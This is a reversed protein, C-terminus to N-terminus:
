RATVEWHALEDIGRWLVSDITLVQAPQELLEGLGERPETGCVGLVVPDGPQLTWHGGKDATCQWQEPPMYGQEASKPIIMKLEGVTVPGTRRATSSAAGSHRMAEGIRNETWVGQLVSRQWREEGGQELWRNYLTVTDCFEKVM